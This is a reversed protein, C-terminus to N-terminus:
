MQESLFTEFWVNCVQQQVLLLRLCRERKSRNSDSFFLKNPPLNRIICYHSKTAPLQKFEKSIREKLNWLTNWALPLGMALSGINVCFLAVYHERILVEMAYGRHQDEQAITM